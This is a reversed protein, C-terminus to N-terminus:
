KTKLVLYLSYGCFVIFEYLFIIFVRKPASKQLPAYSSQVVNYVPTRAQLKARAMAVQQSMQNYVQYRTSIENELYEARTKFRELLINQHSDVYDAYDKSADMYEERADKELKILYNLDQQAKNTRYRYIYSQLQSSVTDVLCAAIYPDQMTVQIDIISTKTDLKVVISQSLGQLLMLHDETIRKPDHEVTSTINTPTEKFLHRVWQMAPAWWVSSQHNVLYDELNTSLEGDDTTVQVNLLGELFDTSSM